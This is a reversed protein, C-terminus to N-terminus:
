ARCAQSAGVGEGDKEVDQRTLRDYMTEDERKNCFIGNSVVDIPNENLGTM